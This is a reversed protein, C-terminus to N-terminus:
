RIEGRLAGSEFRVRRALMFGFAVFAVPGTVAARMIMAAGALEGLVAVYNPHAVYRYPGSAVLSVGPITGLAKAHWDAIYGTGLFGVRLPQGAQKM